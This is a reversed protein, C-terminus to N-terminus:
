GTREGARLGRRVAAHVAAPAGDLAATGEMRRALELAIGNTERAGKRVAGVLYGLRVAAGTERSARRELDDAVATLTVGLTQLESDGRVRQVCTSLRTGDQLAVAGPAAGLARQVAAADQLCAAPMARDGGSCGALVHTLAVIATLRRAM